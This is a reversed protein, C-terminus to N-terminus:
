ARSPIAPAAPSTIGTVAMISIRGNSNNSVSISKIQKQQDGASLTIINDYMRPNNAVEDTSCYSLRAVRGFGLIAYPYGNYWDPVNFQYSSSSSGDTFNLVASFSGSGESSLGLIAIQSYTGPVTFLLNGSAGYNSLHLANNTSYDALQYSLSSNNASTILGNQPLGQGYASCFPYGKQYMVTGQVDMAITTSNIPDVNGNAVLDQNFGTIVIREYSQSHVALTSLLLLFFSASLCKLSKKFLTNHLLSKMFLKKVNYLM